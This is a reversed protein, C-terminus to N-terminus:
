TGQHEADRSTVAFLLYAALKDTGRFVIRVIEKEPHPNVWEHLTAANKEGLWAARCDLPYCAWVGGRKVDGYEVDAVNWGYRIEMAAATGDAYVVEGKAVLTGESPNGAHRASMFEPLDDLPVHAAHLLCLSAARRGVAVTAENTVSVRLAGYGGPAAVPKVPVNGFRSRGPLDLPIESTRDLTLCAFRETAGPIPKRSWNRMLFDGWRALKAKRDAHHRTPAARWMSDALLRQAMPGYAGAHTLWWNYICSNMGCGTIFEEGLPNDNYATLLKWNEFGDRAHEEIEYFDHSAWGDLIVDRPLDKLVDACRFRNGGNHTRNVMDACMVM